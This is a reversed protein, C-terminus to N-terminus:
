VGICCLKCCYDFRPVKKIVLKPMKTNMTKGNIKFSIDYVIDTFNDIDIKYPVLEDSLEDL